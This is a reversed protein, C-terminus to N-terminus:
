YTKFQRQINSGNDLDEGSLAQLTMKEVLTEMEQVLQKEQAKLDAVVCFSNYLKQIDKEDKFALKFTEFSYNNWVKYLNVEQKMKVTSLKDVLSGLTDM